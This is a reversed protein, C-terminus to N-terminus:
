EPPNKLIDKIFDPLKINNTNDSSESGFAREISGEVYGIAAALRMCMTKFEYINLDNEFTFTITEPERLGDPMPDTRKYTLTDM